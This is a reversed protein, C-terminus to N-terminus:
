FDLIMLRGNADPAGINVQAPTILGEDALEQLVERRVADADQSEATSEPVTDDAPEFLIGLEERPDFFAVLFFVISLVLYTRFPPMFRARRGELYDRTLRGPRVALPILTRWLRSDIELLDGFAEQTLEWISILRSRARQGCQGCYQGFLSQGCNLCIERSRDDGADALSPRLVRRSVDFHGAFLTEASRRMVAAPGALYQDLEAENAFRYQTVRTVRPGDGDDDFSAADVIGPMELMEDIHQRLWDDFRDAVDRDVVHTVEYIPGSYEPM